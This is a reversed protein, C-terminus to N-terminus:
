SNREINTDIALKKCTECSCPIEEYPATRRKGKGFKSDLHRFLTWYKSNCNPVVELTAQGVIIFFRVKTKTCRKYVKYKKVYGKGYPGTFLVQIVGSEKLNLPIPM